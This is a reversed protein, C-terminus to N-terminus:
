EKLCKVFNDAMKTMMELYDREDQHDVIGLPDLEGTKLQYNLAFERVIAPKFQFESFVCRIDQQKYTSVLSRFHKISLSNEPNSTFVGAGKLAYAKEFYQYGDHFVFFAHSAIPKLKKKLDADLSQMSKQIREFNEQIKAKQSPNKQILYDKIFHAIKIANNPDIWVHPDVSHAPHLHDHSSHAHQHDSDESDMNKWEKDRRIPLFNLVELDMMKVNELKFAQIPKILFTEYEPGIWFVTRAHRIKQQDSPKLAYTHASYQGKLLVDVDEIEKLLGALISHLPPISALYRAAQAPFTLILSLCLILFKKQIIM